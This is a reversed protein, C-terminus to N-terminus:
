GEGGEVIPEATQIHIEHTRAAEAWCMGCAPLRQQETNGDQIMTLMVTATERCQEWRAPGFSFAGGYRRYGECRPASTKM